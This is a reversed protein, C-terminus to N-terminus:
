LRKWGKKTNAVMEEYRVGFSKFYAAPEIALVAGELSDQSKKGLHPYDHVELGIGHGISHILKPLGHKEIFCKLNLSQNGTM